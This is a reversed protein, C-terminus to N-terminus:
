GRFPLSSIVSKVEDPDFRITEQKKGFVTYASNEGATLIGLTGFFACCLLMITLLYIHLLNKM